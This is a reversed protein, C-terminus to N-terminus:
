AEEESETIIMLNKCWEVLFEDQTEIAREAMELMYGNLLQIGVEVAWAENQVADISEAALVDAIQEVFGNYNMRMKHMM